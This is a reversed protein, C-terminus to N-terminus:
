REFFFSASRAHSVGVARKAEPGGRVVATARLVQNKRNERGNWRDSREGVRPLSCACVKDLMQGVPDALRQSNAM